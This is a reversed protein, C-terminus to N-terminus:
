RTWCLHLRLLRKWMNGLLDDTLHGSLKNTGRWLMNRLGLCGGGLCRTEGGRLNCHSLGYSLSGQLNDPTDYHSRRAYGGRHHSTNPTSNTRNYHLTYIVVLRGLVCLPVWLKWLLLHLLLKNASLNTRLECISLKMGLLHNHVLLCHHVLVELVDLQGCVDCIIHRTNCVVHYVGTRRCAGTLIPVIFGQQHRIAGHLVRGHQCHRIRADHVPM